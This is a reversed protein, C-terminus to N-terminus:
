DVKKGWKQIVDRAARELREGEAKSLPGLQKCALIDRYDTKAMQVFQLVKEVSGASLEIIALQVREKEPEHREVGYLELAPLIVALDSEQFVARAAALVKDGTPTM